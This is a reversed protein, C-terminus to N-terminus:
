FWLVAWTICYLLALLARRDADRLTIVWNFIVSSVPVHLEGGCPWVTNYAQQRLQDTPAAVWSLSICLPLSPCSRLLSLSIFFAGNEQNDETHLFESLAGDRDSVNWLTGGETTQLVNNVKVEVCVFSGNLCLACAQPSTVTAMTVIRVTGGGGRGKGKVRKSGKFRRQTLTGNWRDTTSIREGAFMCAQM